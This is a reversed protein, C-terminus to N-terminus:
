PLIVGIQTRMTQLVANSLLTAGDPTIHIGDPTRVNVNQGNIVLFATYQGQATGLISASSVYIVNKVQTAAQHQLGNITDIRANLGPDQMPPISVWILTAGTSTAEQMFKIVTAEYQQNWQPTGFPVDPPGPFDQPDNAGMMAVVVQPNSKPLDGALEAPWNFYDPRTLGTSEKGDLTATVVGTNALANQLSGGLDLGLSDGLILVRLPVASTPHTLSDLTTTTTGKTITTTTDKRKKPGAVMLNSGGSGNANRGVIENATSEIRSLQLFRSSTALPNLIALAVTRRTGVPSVQANHQLTTADLVVWMALAAAVLGLVRGWPLTTRTFGRASTLTMPEIRASTALDTASPDVGEAGTASSDLSPESAEDDSM